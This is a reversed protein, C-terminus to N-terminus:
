LSLPKSACLRLPAFACLRLPASACLRLPASACLRLPASSCLRLLRMPKTNFDICIFIIGIFVQAAGKKLLTDFFKMKLFFFKM